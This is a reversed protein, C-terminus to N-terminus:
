GCRDDSLALDAADHTGDEFTTIVRYRVCGGLLWGNVVWSPPRVMAQIPTAIKALQEPDEATAIAGTVNGPERLDYPWVDVIRAHGGVGAAGYALTTGSRLRQLAAAVPAVPHAAGLSVGPTADSWAVAAVDRGSTLEARPAFTAAGGQAGNGSSVALITLAGGAALAVSRGDPSWAVSTARASPAVVRWAASPLDLVGVGSPRLALAAQRGSPAVAAAAVESAPVPSAFPTLAGTSTDLRQLSVSGSALAREDALVSGGPIAALSFLLADAATRRQPGTPPRPVGLVDIVLDQCCGYTFAVDRELAVLGSPGNGTYDAAAAVMELTGTAPDAAFLVDYPVDPPAVGADHVTFYLLQHPPDLSPGWVPGSTLLGKPLALIPAVRGSRPDVLAIGDSDAIALVGSAPAAPSATPAAASATSVATPSTGAATSAASPLPPRAATCSALVLIAGLLVTAGPAAPPRM